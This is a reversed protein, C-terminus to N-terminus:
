EDSSSTRNKVLYVCIIIHIAVLILYTVNLPYCDILNEGSGPRGLKVMLYLTSHIGAFIACISTIFYAYYAYKKGQAVHLFIIACIIISPGMVDYFLVSLIKAVLCVAFNTILLVKLTHNSHIEKNTRSMIGLQRMAIESSRVFCLKTDSAKWTSGGM